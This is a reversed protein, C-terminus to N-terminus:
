LSWEDHDRVVSQGLAALDHEAHSQRVFVPLDASMQAFWRDRCFPTAGLARGTAELVTCVATETVSRTRLAVKMANGYPNGDIWAAGDRLVAAAGTLAADVTGLHARRYPDDRHMVAQRLANGLAAAAGYWCAAIGAAGQWFGPRSLYEGSGGAPIAPVADFEVEVSQTAAMGIAHWGRETVHIGPQRLNVAALWREGRSDRCTVLANTVFAAGSCWAKTGALTMVADGDRDGRLVADPPEAAWVAWICGPELQIPARLEALIALADTHSEYIKLLSLDRGAITAM